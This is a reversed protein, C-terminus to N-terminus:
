TRKQHHLSDGWEDWAIKIGMEALNRELKSKSLEADENIGPKNNYIQYNPRFQPVTMNPMIINAGALVARERGLPDIAQLATTAAINIDKMILRLLSIMKLTLILRKDQPILQDRLAFLPTDKHELYPGMGVMDIDLEKFFLLDDALDFVSQGPLGIMVGTGTQYGIKKLNKLAQLRTTYGHRGDSPHLKAFLNPNSSEIRLLYRHAGAQYWERYTELPQAGCSLTIGLTNNTQHKITRVLKTIRKVFDTGTREGSQIVLSGYREKWAFDAAALVQTETLDYRDVKRNSCRIGCYLCDRECINSLEIIGRLWVSDGITESKCRGAAEWLQEVKTQDEEALWTALAERSPNNILEHLDIM